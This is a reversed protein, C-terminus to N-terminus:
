LYEKSEFAQLFLEHDSQLLEVRGNKTSGGESDRDRRKAPMKDFIDKFCKIKNELSIVLYKSSSIM